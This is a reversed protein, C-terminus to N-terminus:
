MTRCGDGGKMGLVEEDKYVSVRHGNSVLEGKGGRELGEYRM